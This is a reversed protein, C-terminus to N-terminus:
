RTGRADASMLAFIGTTIEIISVVKSLCWSVYKIL